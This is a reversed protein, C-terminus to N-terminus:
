KHANEVRRKKEYDKKAMYEYLANPILDVIRTLWVIQWPFQIYRKKKAIGSAIIKAAKEPSMLFPMPFENKDTMPTKVFGPRVTLVDIGYSKLEVALGELYKSAAAKSACYFGSGSYGRVDALSSVGVIMGKNKDLYKPLLQEVWYIIGFINAGFTQEAHESNFKEPVVRVGFGSNLIAIDIFDYQASIKACTNEVELKNSVDCKFVIIKAKNESLQEKLEELLEIRRAILILNCNIKSLEIALAKGIGTSAGTILITKEKFDM